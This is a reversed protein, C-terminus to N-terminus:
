YTNLFLFVIVKNQVLGTPALPNSKDRYEFNVQYAKPIIPSAPSWTQAGVQAIAGAGWIFLKYTDIM